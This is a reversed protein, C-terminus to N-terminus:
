IQFNIYEILKSKQLNLDALTKNKLYEIIIEEFETLFEFITKRILSENVNSEKTETPKIDIKELANYIELLTIENAKKLLRYGGRAGRKVEILGSSKLQAVVHELYKGSISEKQAVDKVQTYQNEQSECLKLLFQLGYVIKNSLQM